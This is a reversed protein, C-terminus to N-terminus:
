DKVDMLFANLTIYLSFFYDYLLHLFYAFSQSKERAVCYNGPTLIIALCRFEM